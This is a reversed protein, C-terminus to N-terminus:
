QMSHVIFHFAFNPHHFILSNRQPKILFVIANELEKRYEEESKSESAKFVSIRGMSHFASVRVYNKNDTTLKVLDEWAQEKNPIYPFASGISNAIGWRVNFHRDNTFKHLDKWARSKNPVHPFALGLVSAAHRKLMEDKESTLALLDDWAQEKNCMFNLSDKGPLHPFFLALTSIAMMKVYTDESLILKQLIKYVQTKDLDNFFREVKSLIEKGCKQETGIQSGLKILDELAKEKNPVYAFVMLLYEVEKIIVVSRFLYTWRTDKDPICPFIYTIVKVTAMLSTTNRDHFITTLNNWANEKNLVDLLINIM